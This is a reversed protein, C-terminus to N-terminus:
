QLTQIINADTDICNFWAAEGTLKGIFLRDNSDILSRLEDRLQVATNNSRIIWASECVKSCTYSKIKNILLYYNKGPTNLDYTILYKYM